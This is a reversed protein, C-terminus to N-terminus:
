VTMVLSTSSVFIAASEGACRALARAVALARATASSFGSSTTQPKSVTTSHSPSTNPLGFSSASATRISRASEPRSCRTWVPTQM